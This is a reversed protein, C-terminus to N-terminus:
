VWPLPNTTLAVRAATVWGDSPRAHAQTNLTCHNVLSLQLSQEPAKISTCCLHDCSRASMEGPIKKRRKRKSKLNQCPSMLESRVQIAKYEDTVEYGLTLVGSHM